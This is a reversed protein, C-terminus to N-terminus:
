KGKGVPHKDYWGFAGKKGTWAGMDLWGKAGGKHHGYHKSAATRLDAPGAASTQESAMPFQQSNGGMSTQQHYLQSGAGVAQQGGPLTAPQLQVRDDDDSDDDDSDLRDLNSALGEAAGAPLASQIGEYQAQLDNAQQSLAAGIEQGTPQQQQQEGGTWGRAESSNLTFLYGLVVVVVFAKMFSESSSM